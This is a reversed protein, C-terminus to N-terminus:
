VVVVCLCICSLPGGAPEGALARAPGSYSTSVVRALAEGWCKTAGYVNVPWVPADWASGSAEGERGVGGYGLVANISSVYVM